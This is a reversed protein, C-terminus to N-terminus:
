PVSIAFIAEDIKREAWAAVVLDAKKPGLLLRMDAELAHLAPM